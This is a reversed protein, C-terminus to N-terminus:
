GTGCFEIPVGTAIQLDNLFLKATPTLQECTTVGTNAYELRDLGMVALSTPANYNCARIVLDLDFHAVRRLRKTVSTYEPLTSPANSLLRIEDWSIEDSLPGSTGGVRIPFTRIVM